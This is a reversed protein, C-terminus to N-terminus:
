SKPPSADICRRLLVSSGNFEPTRVISDLIHGGRSARKNCSMNTARLGYADIEAKADAAAITRQDTPLSAEIKAIVPPYTSFPVEDAVKMWAYGSLDDRGSGQGLLYMRGLAWQSGKDGACATRTFLAPATDDHKGDYAKKADYLMERCTRASVRDVGESASGHVLSSSAVGGLLVALVVFGKM